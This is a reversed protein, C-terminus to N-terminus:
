GSFDQFDINCRSSILLEAVAARGTKAAVSLPTLGHEDQYNIFSQAGPGSVLTSFTSTDGRDVANLLQKGSWAFDTGAAAM